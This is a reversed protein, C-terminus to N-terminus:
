NRRGDRAVLVNCQSIDHHIAISHHKSDARGFCLHRFRGAVFPAPAPPQLASVASPHQPAGDQRGKGDVDDHETFARNANAHSQPAHHRTAVRCARRVNAWAAVRMGGSIRPLDRRWEAMRGISAFVCLRKQRSAPRRATREGGTSVGARGNVRM